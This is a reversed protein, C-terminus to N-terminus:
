ECALFPQDGIRMYQKGDKEGIWAAHIALDVVNPDDAIIQNKYREAEVRQLYVMGSPAVRRITGKASKGDWELWLEATEGIDNKTRCALVGPLAEPAPATPEATAEREVPVAPAPVDAATVATQASQAGACSATLVFVFALCLKVLTRYWACGTQRSDARLTTKRARVNPSRARM